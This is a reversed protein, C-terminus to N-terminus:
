ELALQLLEKAISNMNVWDNDTAKKDDYEENNYTNVNQEVEIGSEKETGEDQSSTENNNEEIFILTEVANEDDQSITSSKDKQIEGKFNGFHMRKLWLVDRTIM